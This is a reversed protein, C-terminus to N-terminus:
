AAWARRVVGRAMEHFAADVQAPTSSAPHERWWEIAEMLAGALMRAVLARPPGGPSVADSGVPLRREIIRAAFGVSLKWLDDLQGARRLAEVFDGAEGIHELFEAVPFLRAGRAVPRELLSEFHAFVREYSSHLVDAKNRYHSYFTARGVGARDLISQVTIEAFDREQILEVLATGLAQTSRIVRPDIESHNRVPAHSRNPM